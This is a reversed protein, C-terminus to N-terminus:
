RRESEKRERIKWRGYLTGSAGDAPARAGPRARWAQRLEWGQGQEGSSGGRAGAAVGALAGARPGAQRAQVAPAGV